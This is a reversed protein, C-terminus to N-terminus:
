SVGALVLKMLIIIVEDVRCGAESLQLNGLWKRSSNWEVLKWVPTQGDTELSSSCSLFRVNHYIWLSWSLIDLILDRWNLNCKLCSPPTTYFCRSQLQLRGPRRSCMSWRVQAPFGTEMRRSTKESSGPRWKKERRGLCKAPPVRPVIWYVCGLSRSELMHVEPARHRFSRKYCTILDEGRLVGWNVGM